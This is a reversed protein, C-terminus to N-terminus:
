CRTTTVSIYMRSFNHAILMKFADKVKKTLRASFSDLFLFSLKKKTHKVWIDRIWKMMIKEDMWSKKLVNSGKVNQICRETQGKFIVVPPLHEWYCCVISCSHCLMERIQNNVKITKERRVDVTRTSICQLRMWIASASM